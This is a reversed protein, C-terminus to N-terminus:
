DIQIIDRYLADIHREQYGKKKVRSMEHKLALLEHETINELKSISLPSIEQGSLAVLYDEVTYRWFHIKQGFKVKLRQAMQLGEPDYDGSYYISIDENCLKEILQLAALKFQGHTCILPLPAGEHIDLISSFVGSNEVIFVQNGKKPFIRDYKALERLPVNHVSKEEYLCEWSALKEDNKVASLGFCTVFNQIDDKLIGYDYLLENVTEINSNNAYPVKDKKSQIIQLATIFKSEKDFYHPDGAIQEALVPLRVKKVLPLLSITQYIREIASFDTQNYSQIFGISGPEKNLISETLWATNESPYKEILHSFFRIREEEKLLKVDKKYSITRGLVGEIVKNFDVGQFKTEDLQREFKRLSVTTSSKKSYDRGFWNRLLRKEDETLNSLTVSGGIHGLSEIKDAFAEFLRIYGPEKKFYVIAEKMEDM